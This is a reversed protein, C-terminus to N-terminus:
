ELQKCSQTFSIVPSTYETLRFAVTVNATLAADTAATSTAGAALRCACTFRLAHPPETAHIQGGQVVPTDGTAEATCSYPAHAVTPTASVQIPATALSGHTLTAFLTLPTKPDLHSLAAVSTACAAPAGAAVVDHANPTTGVDLTPAYIVELPPCQLSLVMRLTCADERKVSCIANMKPTADAPADIPVCPSCRIAVVAAKRVPLRSPDRVTADCGDGNFIEPVKAIVMEFQAEDHSDPTDLARLYLPDSFDRRWGKQVGLQHRDTPAGEAVEVSVGLLLRFRHQAVPSYGV